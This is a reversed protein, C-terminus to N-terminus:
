IGQTEEVLEVNSNMADNLRGLSQQIKRYEEIRANNETIKQNLAVRKEELVTREALLNNRRRAFETQSAFCGVTGACNNFESIEEDLKNVGAMYEDREQDIEAKTKEVEAVLEELRLKLELFPMEYERYYTVIKARDRFYKAYHNELDSPLEELKTGARAYIEEIRDSENYTELEGDFWERRENYVEELWTQVQDREWSYMREWAAHLLEHAMTVKNATALQEEQIEYVYIKGETYCGLLSIDVNHSNCVQNFVESEELTPHVANFIREGKSTLDLNERMEVVEATPQYMWGRWLDRAVPLCFMAGITLVVALLVIWGRRRWGLRRVVEQDTEDNM